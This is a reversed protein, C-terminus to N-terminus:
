EEYIGFRNAKSVHKCCIPELVEFLNQMHLKLFQKNPKKYQKLLYAVLDVCQVFYSEDSKRYWPDEITYVLPKNMMSKGTPIPNYIRMKRILKSLRGDTMDPIIIGKDDPNQPGAFNRNSITNEFRQILRNWAVTFVDYTGCKCTKNIVVNILTVDTINSLVEVYYKIIKIRDEFSIRKHKGFSTLFNCTHIEERLKLGYKDRLQKRFRILADLCDRWRLEHIVLGSLIFYESQSGSLGSDGSEDVYMLYM